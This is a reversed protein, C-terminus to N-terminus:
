RKWRKLRVSFTSGQQEESSVLIEGQMKQVLDLAIALGLGTGAIEGGAQKGRFNREFLHPLDEVPIGVGTDRINVTAYNRDVEVNLAVQGRAVTYKMANDLLNGLAERLAAANGLILPLEDPIHVVFELHREQAIATGSNILPELIEM